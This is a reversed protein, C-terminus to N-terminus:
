PLGYIPKYYDYITSIELNSLDRSYVIFSAIQADWTAGYDITNNIRIVQSSLNINAAANTNTTLISNNKTITRTSGGSQRRLTWLNWSNAGGSAAVTRTNADCCGGQDFYINGDSWPHHSFIGRGAASNDAGNTSFFRFAGTAVNSNVNALLMVTYGSTNTIGVSNSAPGSAFRGNTNFYAAAGSVYSPNADWTFNKSKGSVDMWSTGSGSYSQLTTRADLYVELSSAPIPLINSKIYSSIPISPSITKLDM